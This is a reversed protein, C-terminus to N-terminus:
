GHNEVQKLVFELEKQYAPNRLDYSLKLCNSPIEVREWGPEVPELGLYSRQENNLEM